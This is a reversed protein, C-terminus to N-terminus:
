RWGGKVTWSSDAAWTDRVATSVHTSGRQLAMAGATILAAVALAKAATAVLMRIDLAATM